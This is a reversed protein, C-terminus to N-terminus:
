VRDIAAGLRQLLSVIDSDGADLGAIRVPVEGALGFVLMAKAFPEDMSRDIRVSGPIRGAGRVVWGDVTEGAVSGSVLRAVMDTLHNPKGTGRMASSPIRTEGEALAAVAFLMLGGDAIAAAHAHSIGVGRLRGVHRVRIDAIPGSATDRENELVIHGGMERLIALVGMRAPDVLVGRMQVDSGPKLLAAAAVVAALGPDGPVAVPKGHLEGDGRVVVKRAGPTETVEIRGGLHGILREVHGPSAAKELVTTAGPAHLGAVLIGAKAAASPELLAHEIPVLDSTGRLILHQRDPAATEIVLGMSLLVTLCERMAPDDAMRVGDIRATMEHGAAIGLSLGAAIGSHGVDIPCTPEDLGGVGRGIVEWGQEIPAATAGLSEIIRITARVGATDLLGTVRTRGTAVAGLLLAGQTIEPDGPVEVDGRLPGNRHATAIDATPKAM